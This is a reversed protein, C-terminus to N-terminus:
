KRIIRPRIKISSHQTRLSAILYPRVSKVSIVFVAKTISCHKMWLNNPFRSTHNKKVLQQSVYFLKWSHPISSCTLNSPIPELTLALNRLSLTDSSQSYSFQIKTLYSFCSKISKKVPASLPKYYSIVMEKTIPYYNTSHM